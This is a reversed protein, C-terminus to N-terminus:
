MTLTYEDDNVMKMGDKRIVQGTIKLEALVAAKLWSTSIFLYVCVKQRTEDM